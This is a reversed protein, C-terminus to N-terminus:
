QAVEGERDLVAFLSEYPIWEISGIQWEAISKGGTIVLLVTRDEPDIALLHGEIPERGHGPRVIARFTHNPTIM